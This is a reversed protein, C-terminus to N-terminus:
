AFSERTALKILAMQFEIKCRESPVPDQNHTALRWPSIFLDRENKTALDGFIENFM